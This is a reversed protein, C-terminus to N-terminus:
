LSHEMVEIQDYLQNMSFKKNDTKVGLRHARVKFKKSKTAVSTHSLGRMLIRELMQDFSIGEETAYGRIENLLEKKIDITTRM